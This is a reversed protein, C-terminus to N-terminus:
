EKKLSIGKIVVKDDSTLQYSVIVPVGKKLVNSTASTTIYNLNITESGMPIQIVVKYYSQIGNGDSVLSVDKVVGNMEYVNSELDADSPSLSVSDTQTNDEGVKNSQKVVKEVLKKNNQSNQEGEKPEGQDSYGTQSSNTDNKSEPQSNQSSSNVNSRQQSSKQETQVTQRENSDKTVDDKRLRLGGVLVALMLVVIVVTAVILGVVKKNM